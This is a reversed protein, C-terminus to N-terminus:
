SREGTVFEVLGDLTGAGATVDFQESEEAAAGYVQDIREREETLQRIAEARPDGGRVPSLFAASLSRPQQPGREALAFFAYARSAFSNQKGTPAVTLMARTLAMVAQDALDEDGGLNEVLGDRNICTYLYFVGAGFGTEGMHGAGVDELGQNLDDVATYFDEEVTVANVSIAHAVQAAAEVNDVPTDALMRGFLAIDVARGDKRIGAIEEDTPARNEEALAAVLKEIAATEAPSFHVLQEFWVGPNVDEEGDEGEDKKSKKNKKSKKAEGQLKGFPALIGRVWVIADKEKAGAEVLKDLLDQGLRKTRTGIDDSLGDAFVSSTRWTRKLCQSSIRLRERGGFVATKPRGLDDRNLNAPPYSTLAHIQIFESM